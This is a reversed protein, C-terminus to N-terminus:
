RLNRSQIHYYFDSEVNKEFKKLTELPIFNSNLRRLPVIYLEEPSDGRGGLGIAVFVPIKKSEEYKQYRKFQDPTAFEIGGNQNINNRWKCEVSLMAKEKKLDLELLLDPHQTTEAYRGNIYKDGAWEKIRFFKKDFKQVVFKEFDDGNKKNVDIIETEAVGDAAIRNEVDRIIVNYNLGKTNALEKILNRENPTLVGDAIAMNVIRELENSTEQSHDLPKTTIPTNTTLPAQNVSAKQSITDAPAKEVIKNKEAPKGSSTYFIFGVIFCIVGIIMLTM